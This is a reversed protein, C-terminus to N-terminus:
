SDFKHMNNCLRLQLSQFESRHWSEYLAKKGLKIHKSHNSNFQIGTHWVHAGFLAMGLYLFIIGECTSSM